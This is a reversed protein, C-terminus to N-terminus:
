LMRGFYAVTRYRIVVIGESSHKHFLAGLRNELISKRPDREDPMYSASLTRGVLGDLDLFQHNIFEVRGLDQVGLFEKITEEGPVLGKIRDYDKAFGRVISDYEEMFVDAAPYRENWIIAVRGPPRLIRMWETRTEELRFWHFSQAATVLDVSAQKMTTNESTGKVSRFNTFKSLSSEAQARMEDNPEVGYVLNGEELLMETFKGTGSGIDAVVSGEMLIGERKLFRILEAPYGPRYRAYVGVRGTFRGTPDLDPEKMMIGDYIM